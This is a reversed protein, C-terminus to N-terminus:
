KISHRRIAAIGGYEDGVEGRIERGTYNLFVDELTPEHISMSDIHIGSSAAIEVVRPLAANGDKVV